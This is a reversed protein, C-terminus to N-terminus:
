GLNLVLSIDSALKEVGEDTADYYGRIKGEGDVLVFREAHFIQFLNDADKGMALKFGKVVTDEIVRYDGTLFTWRYASAHFRRAYGHLVEPTDNEPDVTFTVLHVADGANRTRHQLDRMKEMLGPCISPCSTFVFSAVWVKGRLDKSGFAHQKESMLEFEPLQMLKPPPDPLVRSFAQAVPVLALLAVAVLWFAPKGMLRGLVGPRSDLIPERKM